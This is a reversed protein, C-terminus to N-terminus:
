GKILRNKHVTSLKNTAKNMITCNSTDFSVVTYPGIYVPDLKKRNENKLYVADGQKVDLPKVNVNASDQRKLKQEILNKRAIENSKKLKYKMENYYADYNYVPEINSSRLDQPLKAKKGFAM